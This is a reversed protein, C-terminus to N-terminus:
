VAKEQRSGATQKRVSKVSWLSPISLVNFTRVKEVTFGMDELHRPYNYIKHFANKAAVTFLIVAIYWYANQFARVFLNGEPYRFDGVVFRGDAKALTGLHQMVRVMLDEPFVNLFFNAVVQDYQGTEDFKLIDSHVLRIPHKFTKGELNREIRKLMTASLDVVTVKAGRQAADIADLGHGAGAFLVTDDENLDANMATKANFIQRGSYITSLFDYVPGIIRYRDPASTQIRDNFSTCNIANRTGAIKM